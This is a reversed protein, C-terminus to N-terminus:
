REGTYGIVNGDKTKIVGTEDIIFTRTGSVGQEIPTASITYTNSSVNSTTFTYGTKTFTEITGYTFNNKRYDEQTKYYERLTAIASAENANHRARLLNPIAIAALLGIVSIIVFLIIVFLIATACGESSPTIKGENIKKAVSYADFIGYIWPIILWATFFILIGKGIQGNYVQGLGAVIFSLIAALAPNRGKAETKKKALVSDICTKCYNKGEFSVKCEECIANGCGVCIGIADRDKHVTCKM